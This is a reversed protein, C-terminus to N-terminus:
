EFEQWRPPSPPHGECIPILDSLGYRKQVDALETDNGLRDCAM